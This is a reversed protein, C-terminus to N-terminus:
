TINKLQSFRNIIEDRNLNGFIDYITKPWHGRYYSIFEKKNTFLDYLAKSMDDVNKVICIGESNDNIAAFAYSIRHPNNYAIPLVGLAIAEFAITSGTTIVASCFRLFDYFGEFVGIMKYSLRSKSRQKLISIFEKSHDCAPHAKIILNVEIKIMNLAEALIIALSATEDKNLSLSIFISNEANLASPNNVINMNLYSFLNLYRVPGLVKVKQPDFGNDLMINKANNSSTFIYNPFSERFTSNPPTEKPSFIHSLYDVGITSHQFGITNIKNISAGQLLAKEIPQFELRYFLSKIPFNIREIASRILINRYFERSGYSMLLEEIIMESVIFGKLNMKKIEDNSKLMYIRLCYPLKLLLLLDILNINRQLVYFSAHLRSMGIRVFDLLSLFSSFHLWVLNIYYNNVDSWDSESISWFKDVASEDDYPNNWWLPFMSFSSIINKNSVIKAIGFKSIKLISLIFATNFIMSLCSAVAKMQNKLYSLFLTNFRSSKKTVSKVSYSKSFYELLSKSLLDDSIDLLVKSIGQKCINNIFYDILTIKYARNVLKGRYLSKENFEYLEWNRVDDGSILELISKKKSVKIKKLDFFLKKISERISKRLFDHSNNSISFFSLNIKKKLKYPINSEVVDPSIDLCLIKVEVSSSSIYNLWKYSSGDTIVIYM